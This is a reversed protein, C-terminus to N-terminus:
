INRLSVTMKENNTRENKDHLFEAVPLALKQSVTQMFSLMFNM